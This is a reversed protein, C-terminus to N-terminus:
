KRVPPGDLRYDAPVEFLSAPPEGRKINVLRYTIDGVRPDSRKGMVVVQLEPSYWTEVVLEVPANNGITNPRYTTKTRSGRAAVGEITQTGLSQEEREERGEAVRREREKAQREPNQTSFFTGARSVRAIHERPDLAYNLQKVPDQILIMTPAGRERLAGPTLVAWPGIARITQERRTRGEADRAVVATMQTTIESGTPLTQKVSTVAKASYPVGRVVRGEVVFDSSIVVAEDASQAAGFAAVAILAAFHKLV